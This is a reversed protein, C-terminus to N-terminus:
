RSPWRLIARAPLEISVVPPEAIGHAAPPLGLAFHATPPQETDWGWEDRVPLWTGNELLLEIRAGAHVPRGDLFHRRGSDTRALILELLPEYHEANWDEWCATDAQELASLWREYEPGYPIGRQDRPLNEPRPPVPHERESRWGCGCVAQAAVPDPDGGRRTGGTWRGDPLREDAWGEHPEQGWGM